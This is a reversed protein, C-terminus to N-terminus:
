LALSTFGRFGHTHEEAVQTDGRYEHFHGHPGKRRGPSTIVDYVHFHGDDLTTNGSMHHVHGPTFPEASTVGWMRHLHGDVFTTEDIYNHTHLRDSM